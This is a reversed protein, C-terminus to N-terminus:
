ACRPPARVSDSRNRSRSKRRSRQQRKASLKFARRFERRQRHIHRERWAQGMPGIMGRHMIQAAVILSRDAGGVQGLVNNPVDRGPTGSGERHKASRASASASAARKMSRMRNFQYPGCGAVRSAIMLHCKCMWGIRRRSSHVWRRSPRARAPRGVPEISCPTQYAPRARFVMLACYNITYEGVRCTALLTDQDATINAGSNGHLGRRLLGAASLARAHRSETSATLMDETPLM